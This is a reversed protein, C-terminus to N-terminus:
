SSVQIPMTIVKLPSTSIFDSQTAASSYSIGLIEADAHHLAFVTHKKGVSLKLFVNSLIQCIANAQYSTRCKTEHLPGPYETALPKTKLRLFFPDARSQYGAKFSCAM